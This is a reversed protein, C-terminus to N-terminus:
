FPADDDEDDGDDDEDDNEAEPNIPLWRTVELRPDGNYNGAKCLVNVHPLKELLVGAFKEIDKTVGDDATEKSVVTKTGIDQWKVGLAHAIQKWIKQQIERKAIAQGDYFRYGSYIGKDSKEQIELWFNIRPDKNKDPKVRAGMIKVRYMGKPPVDGAYIGGTELASDDPEAGLDWKVKVGM